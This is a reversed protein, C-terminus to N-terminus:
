LYNDLQSAEDGPVLDGKEILEERPANTSNWFIKNRNKQVKYKIKKSTTV